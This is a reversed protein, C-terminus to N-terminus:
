TQGSLALSTVAEWVCSRILRSSRQLVLRPRVTGWKFGAGWCVLHVVGIGVLNILFTVGGIEWPPKWWQQWNRLIILYCSIINAELFSSLGVFLHLLMEVATRSCLM